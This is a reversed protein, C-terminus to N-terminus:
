KKTIHIDPELVMQKNSLAHALPSLPLSLSCRVCAGRETHLEIRPKIGHSPDHGLSFDPTLREVSRAM